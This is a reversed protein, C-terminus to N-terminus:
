QQLNLKSDNVILSLSTVIARSQVSQTALCQQAAIWLRQSSSQSAEPLDEFELDQPKQGASNRALTLSM